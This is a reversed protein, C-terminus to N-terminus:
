SARREDRLVVGVPDRELLIPELPIDSDYAEGLESSGGAPVVILTRTNM